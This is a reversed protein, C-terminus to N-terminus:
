AAWGGHAVDADYVLLAAHRRADRAWRAAVLQDLDGTAAAHDLMTAKREYWAAQQATTAASPRSWALAALDDLVTTM